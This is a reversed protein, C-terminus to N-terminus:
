IIFIHLPSIETIDVNWMPKAYLPSFVRHHVNFDGFVHFDASPFEDIKESIQNFIVVAEDQPRYLAFAYTSLHWSSVCIRRILTITRTDRGCPDGDKIYDDLGHGQRNLRPYKKALATSNCSIYLISIFLKSRLDSM